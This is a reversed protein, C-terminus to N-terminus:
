SYNITVPENFSCGMNKWPKYAEELAAAEESATASKAIKIISDVNRFRVQYWEGGRGERRGFYELLDWTCLLLGSRLIKM